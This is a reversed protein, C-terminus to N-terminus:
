EWFNFYNSGCNFLIMGIATSSMISTTMVIMGAPDFYEGVHYITKYPSVEIEIRVIYKM